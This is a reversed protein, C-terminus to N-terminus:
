AQNLLSAIYDWKKNIKDSTRLRNFIKYEFAGILNYMHKIEKYVQQEEFKIMYNEIKKFTWLNE